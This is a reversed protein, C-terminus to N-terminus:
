AVPAALDPAREGSFLRILEARSHLDLKRYVHTLHYEVTKPSLFLAAGVDRNTKGEAVLLSIQLEQPTLKEPATPDRRPISEGTARLETRARESWPEAQVADFIEIAGRLQERADVRRRERRLREGYCLRTRALELPSGPRAEHLELARGFHAEFDEGAALTGRYREVAALAWGRSAAQALEGLRDLDVEASASDGTRIRAEILDPAFPLVSPERVENEEALQAIPELQAIAEAPDGAALALHALAMRSESRILEDGLQEALSSARDAREKCDDARGRVADLRALTALNCAQFYDNGSHQALEAAEAAATLAQSFRGTRLELLALNTLEFMLRVLNGEGRAEDISASLLARGDDYRELWILPEAVNTAFALAGAAGHLSLVQDIAAAADEVDGHLAHARALDQIARFHREGGLSEVLALRRRALELADRTALAQFRRQLVVGLLGAARRPDTAELRSAEDFLVEDAVIKDKWKGHWDAIVALRHVVDAHLLPDTALPLAQEALHIAKVAEGSWYSAVAAEYLRRCRSQDDPSLEAARELARAQSAYGGRLRAREAAAELAEAVSEDPGEAAAALHWARRDADSENSYMGALELHAARREDASASHYLAARVLPHRFTVAGDRVGVLGAEVAPGLAEPTVGLRGDGAAALLLSAKADEPMTAVLAQVSREIRTSVPLPDRLPDLGTRERESLLGPVDLLALPSGEAGAAIREAVDPALTGGCREQLLALAADHDIGGLELMPLGEALALVSQLDRTALVFAVSEGALRRAAFVLAELSSRDLWHADDALVLTPAHDAAEALLSLAGAYAALRDAEGGEDLALATKLARGQTAPISDILGLAPRLLAHLGAYPLDAESEVASVQLVDMGAAHELAYDLLATKGIGPQGHLVLVGSRGLKAEALLRDIRECEAGRGVLM